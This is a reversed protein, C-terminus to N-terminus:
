PIDSGNKIESRRWGSCVARDVGFAALCGLAYCFLDPWSFTRGLLVSLFRSDSLGLLAVLDFYQGVEVVAAFAFIFLPLLRLKNPVCVRCLCCLLLTVLVDGVYPRIFGDHVFLAICIEVALLGCFIAAYLIRLKKVQTEGGTRDTYISYCLGQDADVCLLSRQQVAYNPHGPVYYRVLGGKGAKARSSLDACHCERHGFFTCASM